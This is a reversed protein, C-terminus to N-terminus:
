VWLTSEGAQEPEPAISLGHQHGAGVAHPRLDLDGSLHPVVLGYALVQDGEVDVINQGTPGFGEKEQVVDGKGGQVLLHHISQKAADHPTAALHSAGEDASFGGLHGSRVPRVM